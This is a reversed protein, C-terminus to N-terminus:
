KDSNVLACIFHPESHLYTFRTIPAPKKRQTGSHSIISTTTAALTQPIREVAILTFQRSDTMTKTTPPPPQIVYARGSRVPIEISCCGHQLAIQSDRSCTCRRKISVCACPMSVSFVNLIAHHLPVIGWPPSAMGHCCHHHKIATSMARVCMSIVGWRNRACWGGRIAPWCKLIPGPSRPGPASM